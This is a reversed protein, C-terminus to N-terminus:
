PHGGPQRSGKRGEALHLRLGFGGAATVRGMVLAGAPQASSSIGTGGDVAHQSLDVSHAARDVQM